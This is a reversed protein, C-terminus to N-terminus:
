TSKGSRRFLRRGVHFLLLGALVVSASAQVPLPLEFGGTEAEPASLDLTFLRDFLFGALLATVIVTLVYIVTSKKGLLKGVVGLTAFNTAPGAVLLVMAAGPPIGAHMLAFAIPVSATACIYLPLSLLLIAPYYVWLRSFGAFFDPPVLASVIASGLIGLLFVLAFDGLLEGYAYAGAEVLRSRSAPGESADCSASGSCCEGETCVEAAPSDDGDAVNSNVADGGVGVTHLGGGGVTGEVANGSGGFWNSFWGALTGSVFAVATKFLAFPLGFFSYAVLISDVGTQPTSTLFSVVAGPSAGQKRLGMAFPLVSCSCLPLPVGALSMLPPVEIGRSGAARVVWTDPIFVKLLGAIFLGLVVYPSMEFFIYILSNWFNSFFGAFFETLPM